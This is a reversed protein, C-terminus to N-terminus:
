RSVFGGHLADHVAHFAVAVFISWNVDRGLFLSNHSNNCYMPPTLYLRSIVSQPWMDPPIVQNSFSQESPENSTGLAAKVDRLWTRPFDMLWTSPFEM